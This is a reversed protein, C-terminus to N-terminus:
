SWFSWFLNLLNSQLMVLVTDVWLVKSEPIGNWDQFCSGYNLGSTKGWGKSESISLLFDVATIKLEAQSFIFIMNWGQEQIVKATSYFLSRSRNFLAHLAIFGRRTIFPAPILGGCMCPSSLLLHIFLAQIHLPLNHAISVLINLSLVWLNHQASGRARKHLCGLHSCLLWAASPTPAPPIKLM